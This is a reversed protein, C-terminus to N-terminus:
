FTYVVNSMGFIDNCKYLTRILLCNTKDECTRSLRENYMLFAIIVLPIFMNEFGIYLSRGLLVDRIETKETYAKSGHVM